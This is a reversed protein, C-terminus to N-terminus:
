FIRSKEFILDFVCKWKTEEFHIWHQFNSHLTPTTFTKKNKSQMNKM